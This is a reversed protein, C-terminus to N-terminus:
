NEAVQIKELYEIKLQLNETNAFRNVGLTYVIKIEDGVRIDLNKAFFQVAEINKNQSNGIKLLLKLHTQKLIRVDCVIFNGVFKPESFGNGFIQNELM